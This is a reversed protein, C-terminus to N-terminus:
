DNWQENTNLKLIRKLASHSREVVSVTQPHKLSAHKLQIEVLKTLKHLLEPVFSTELDSLITRPLYSHRFLISTLERAITQESM